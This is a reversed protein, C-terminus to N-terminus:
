SRPWYKYKIIVCTFLVNLFYNCILPASPIPQALVYIFMLVCGLFWSWIFWADIGYSNGAIICSLAQPAGCFALLWAGIWGIIEM